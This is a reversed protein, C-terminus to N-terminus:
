VGTRRAIEAMSLRSSGTFTFKHNDLYVYPYQLAQKPEDNVSSVPMFLVSGFETPSIKPAIRVRLIMKGCRSVPSLIQIAYKGAFSPTVDVRKLRKVM